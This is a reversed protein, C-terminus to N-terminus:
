VKFWMVSISFEVPVSSSKSCTLIAYHLAVHVDRVQTKLLYRVKWFCSLALPADEEGPWHTTNAQFLKKRSASTMVPSTEHEIHWAAGMICHSQAPLLNHKPICATRCRRSAQPTESYLVVNHWTQMETADGTCVFLCVEESCFKWKGWQSKVQFCGLSRLLNASYLEWCCPLLLNVVYSNEGTKM